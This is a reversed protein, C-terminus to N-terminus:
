SGGIVNILRFTLASASVKFRRAQKYVTEDDNIDINVLKSIESRPMLVEAAFANAQIEKQDEGTSSTKDRNLVLKDVHVNNTLYNRHLIHHGLEHSLTFRRRNIHHASNVIIAAVGNKVFAMGSLDDPLSISEIRIGRSKIITEIPTPFIRSVGRRVLRAAEEGIFIDPSM